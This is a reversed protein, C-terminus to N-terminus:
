QNRTNKSVESIAKFINRIPQQIKLFKQYQKLSIESLNSPIILEVKM